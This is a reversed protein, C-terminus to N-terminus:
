SSSVVAGPLLRGEVETIGEGPLPRGEVETVGEGQLLRGEIMIREEPLMYTGEKETVGGCVATHNTRLESDYKTCYTGVGLLILLAECLTQFEHTSWSM